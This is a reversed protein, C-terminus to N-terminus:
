IIKKTWSRLFLPELTVSYKLQKSKLLHFCTVESFLCVLLVYRSVNLCGPACAVSVRLGVIKFHM